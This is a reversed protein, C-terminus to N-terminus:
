RRQRTTMLPSQRRIRIFHDRAQTRDGGYFRTLRILDPYRDSEAEWSDTWEREARERKRGYFSFGAGDLGSMMVRRHGRRPLSLTEDDPHAPAYYLVLSMGHEADREETLLYEFLGGATHQQPAPAIFHLQNARGAFALVRRQRDRWVLPTLQQVLTTVRALILHEELVRDSSETLGEWGKINLFLMSASATVIVALLLMAVMVELLTFGGARNHPLGKVVAPDGKLPLLYRVRREPNIM